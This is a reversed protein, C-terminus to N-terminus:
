PSVSIGDGWDNPRSMPFLHGYQDMTLTISSHRMVAQIAKPHVGTQALWAGCTQRLAHFDLEGEETVLELFQDNRRRKREAPAITETEPRYGERFCRPRSWRCPANMEM